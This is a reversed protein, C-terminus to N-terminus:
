SKVQNKWYGPEINWYRGLKFDFSEPELRALGSAEYHTLEGFYIKSDVNYLDVRVYDFPAALEEALGVMESLKSPKGFVLSDRYGAVRAQIVNWDTDYFSTLIGKGFRNRTVRLMRCKGHFCYLKYDHPLDGASTELLQEVIIHRKINRYAWEHRYLGFNNKMWKKCCSIVVERDTNEKGTVILHMMSGHNPKIVFKEPLDNFPISEPRDTVYYVPILIENAPKVGLVDKIYERVLLKDATVTLLPNRDFLKKWIIKENYSRPSDINLEYNMKELFEKKLNRYNLFKDYLAKIDAYVYNVPKPLHRMVGREKSIKSVGDAMAESEAKLRTEPKM